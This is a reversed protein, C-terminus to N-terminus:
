FTIKNKYTSADKALRVSLGLFVVSLATRLIYKSLDNM